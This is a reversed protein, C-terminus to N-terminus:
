FGIPFNLNINHAPRTSMLIRNSFSSKRCPPKLFILSFATFTQFCTSRCSLIMLFRNYFPFGSGFVKLFRNYFSFTCFWIMLFRNYFPFGSVFVKLFRNYFSFICFRIILFRNYFQFGSLFVKLFRNYLSFVCFPIM